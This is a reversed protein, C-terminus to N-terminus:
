YGQGSRSSSGSSSDSGADTFSKAIDRANADNREEATEYNDIIDQTAKIAVKLNDAVSDYSDHMTKMFTHHKTAAASANPFKGFPVTHDRGLCEGNGIDLIEQQLKNKVYDHLDRLIPIVNKLHETDVEAQEASGAHFAYEGKPDGPMCM